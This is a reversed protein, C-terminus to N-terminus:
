VRGEQPWWPQPWRGTDRCLGGSPQFWPHVSLCISNRSSLPLLPPGLTCCGSPGLSSSGAWLPCSAPSPVIGVMEATDAGVTLGAQSGMDRKTTDSMLRSPFSQTNMQWVGQKWVSSGLHQIGGHDPVPITSAVSFGLAKLASSGMFISSPPSAVANSLLPYLVVPTGLDHQPNHQHLVSVAAPM